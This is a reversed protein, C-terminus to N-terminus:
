AEAFEVVKLLTYRRRVLPLVMALRGGARVVIILPTAAGHGVIKEYLLALWIPHQFATAASSAFLEAYEKSRFDFSDEVTVEFM